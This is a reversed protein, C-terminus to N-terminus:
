TLPSAYAVASLITAPIPLLLTWLGARLLPDSSWGRAHTTPTVIGAERLDQGCEPCTFTAIGRVFYGCNGCAPQTVAKRRWLVRAILFGVIFVVVFGLFPLFWRPM